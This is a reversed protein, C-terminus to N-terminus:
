SVSDPHEEHQKYNFALMHKLQEQDEIIKYVSPTTRNNKYIRLTKDDATYSLKEASIFSDPLYFGNATVYAYRFRIVGAVYISGIMVWMCGILTYFKRHLVPTKLLRERHEEVTQSAPRSVEDYYGARIERIKENDFYVNCGAILMWICACVIWIIHARMDRGVRIHEQERKLLKGYKIYRYITWIFLASVVIITIIFFLDTILGGKEKKDM